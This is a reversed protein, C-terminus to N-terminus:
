KISSPHRTMFYAAGIGMLSLGCCAVAAPWAADFLAGFAFIGFASLAVTGLVAVINNRLSDSERAAADSTPNATISEM